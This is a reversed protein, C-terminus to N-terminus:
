SGFDLLSSRTEFEMVRLINLATVMAMRFYTDNWLKNQRVFLFILEKLCVTNRDSCHATDFTVVLTQLATKRGQCLGVITKSSM